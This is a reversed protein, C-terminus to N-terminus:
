EAESRGKLADAAETEAVHRANAELGLLNRADREGEVAQRRAAEADARAAEADTRARHAGLLMLALIACAATLLLAALGAAYLLATRPPAPRPGEPDYPMSTSYNSM